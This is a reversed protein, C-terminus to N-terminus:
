SWRTMSGLLPATKGANPIIMSSQHMSTLTQSSPTLQDHKGCPTIEITKVPAAEIFEKQAKAANAKNDAM